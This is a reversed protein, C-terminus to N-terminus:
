LQAQVSREIRVVRHPLLKQGPIALCGIGFRTRMGKIKRVGAFVM